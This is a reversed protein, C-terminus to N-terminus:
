SEIMGSIRLPMEISQYLSLPALDIEDDPRNIELPKHNM